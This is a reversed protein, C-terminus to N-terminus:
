VGTRANHVRRAIFSIVSVVIAMLAFLWKLPYTLLEIDNIFPFRIWDIYTYLGVTLVSFSAILCILAVARARSMAVAVAVIAYPLADSVFWSYPFEPIRASAFPGFLFFAFSCMIGCGVATQAGTRLHIPTILRIMSPTKFMTASGHCM